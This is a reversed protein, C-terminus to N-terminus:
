IISNSPPHLLDSLTLGVTSQRRGYRTTYLHQQQPRLLCDGVERKIRDFTGHM